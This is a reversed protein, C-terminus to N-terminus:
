IHILSLNWTRTLTLGGGLGPIRVDTEQISVNGNALSIPEGACADPNSCGGVPPSPPRCSWAVSSCFFTWNPPSSLTYWSTTCSPGAGGYQEQLAEMTPNAWSYDPQAGFGAFGSDSWTNYQTCGSGQAWLVTSVSGIFVLLVLMRAMIRKGGMGCGTGNDTLM